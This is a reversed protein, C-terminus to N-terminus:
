IRTPNKNVKSKPDPLLEPTVVSKAPMNDAFSSATQPARSVNVAGTTAYIRDMIENRGAAIEGNDALLDGRANVNMNGVAIATENSLKIKDIDISQGRATKYIKSM